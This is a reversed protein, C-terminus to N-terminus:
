TLTILKTTIVAKVSGKKVGTPIGPVVGDEIAMILRLRVRELATELAESRHLAGAEFEVDITAKMKM